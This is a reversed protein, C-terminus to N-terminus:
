ALRGERECLSCGHVPPQHRKHTAELTMRARLQYKSAKPKTDKDRDM